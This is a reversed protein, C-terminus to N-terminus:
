MSQVGKKWAHSHAANIRFYELLFPTPGLALLAIRRRCFAARDFRARFSQVFRAGHRIREPLVADQSLSTKHSSDRCKSV